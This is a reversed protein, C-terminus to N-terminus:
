EPRGSVTRKVFLVAVAGPVLLLSFLAACNLGTAIGEAPARAKTDTNGGKFSEGVGMAAGLAIALALGVLAARLYAV